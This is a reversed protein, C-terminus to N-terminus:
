RRLIITSHCGAMGGTGHALAIEADKVQREGAEGRLQRVAETIHFIGAPQGIHAHAILGGHTNVPLEGGLEIRGGEVFPGSEGQKCFGLCELNILGIITYPDYIEAVDIDKPQVGAMAFSAKGSQKTGFTILDSPGGCIYEHTHGEGAGMLYVPPKRLDKAREASTVVFAGAGDAIAACDLMHLPEAIFKSNLVDEVKIPDRFMATPNLSGHKRDAVSWAALQESTTGYEHMHRRAVLALAAPSMFGYPIEYTPHREKAMKKVAMKHTLATLFNDGGVCLVTSAVGANVAMAAHMAMSAQAAGGLGVTIGYRPYIRTYEVFQMNVRALDQSLVGGTLVGDIDEKKLGADEIAYKAAEAQLGFCTSNQLKGVKTEGIGVIATKDKLTFKEM